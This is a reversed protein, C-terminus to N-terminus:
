LLGVINLFSSRKLEIKESFIQASCRLLSAYPLQLIATLFYSMAIDRDSIAFRSRLSTYPVHHGFM